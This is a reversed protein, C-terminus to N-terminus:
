AKESFSEFVSLQWLVLLCFDRSTTRPGFFGFIFKKSHSIWHQCSALAATHVKCKSSRGRLSYNSSSFAYFCLLMVSVFLVKFRTPTIMTGWSVNQNHVHLPFYNRYHVYVDYFHFFLWLWLGFSPGMGLWGFSEGWSIYVSVLYWVHRLHIFRGDKRRSTM